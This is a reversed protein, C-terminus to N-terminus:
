EFDASVRLAQPLPATVGMRKLLFPRAFLMFTIQAGFMATLSLIEIRGHSALRVLGVIAVIAWVWLPLNMPLSHLLM